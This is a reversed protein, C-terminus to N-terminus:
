GIDRRRFSAAAAALALGCWVAAYLLALVVEVTPVHGGNALADCRWFHQVNPLLLAPIRWPGPTAAAREAGLGLLLIVFCGALAPGSQLRTALAVAIAAFVALCALVLLAAPLVRLNPGLRDTASTAARLSFVALALLLSIWIAHFAALGFRARRRLNLVAAAALGLPPLALALAAALRDAVYGARGAGDSPREAASEALLTAATMATWFLAAVALVGAFKAALFLSRDVPRSLAAAATGDRVARAVTGGAAVSVITLGLVLTYAMGGDRELRGPEGFQHFDFLPIFATALVGVLTVLM